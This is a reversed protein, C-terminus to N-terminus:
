RHPGAQAPGRQVRIEQFMWHEDTQVHGARVHKGLSGAFADCAFERAVRVVVGEREGGFASPEGALREVVSRLEREDRVSGRFLVPVSPVGLTEAQATVLDWEWWIDRVDDRVGFLFFYEPLEGYVISHVAYCYEGFLTIGPEIQGCLRAQLAKAWGFSPHAPPGSHSRAFVAERTMALNSGDLKETIVIPAGCLDAVSAMRKDDRTGGPSWPLHFSRPYKTSM